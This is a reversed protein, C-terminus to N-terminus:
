SEQRRILRRGMETIQLQGSASKAIYGREYLRSSLYERLAEPVTISEGMELQKLTEIEDVTPEFVPAHYSSTM